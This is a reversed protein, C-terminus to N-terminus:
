QGVEKRQDRMWANLRACAVLVRDDEHRTIHHRSFYIKKLLDSLTELESSSLPQKKTTVTM